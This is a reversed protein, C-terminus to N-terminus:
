AEKGAQKAALARDIYRDLDRKFQEASDAPSSWCMREIDSWDQLTAIYRYRAADEAEDPLAGPQRLAARRGAQFAAWRLASADAYRWDDHEDTFDSWWAEFSSREDAVLLGAMAPATDLPAAFSDRLGAIAAEIRRFALQDAPSAGDLAHRVSLIDAGPDADVRVLDERVYRVDVSNAPHCGWFVDDYSDFQALEDDEGTSLYIEQPWTALAEDAKPASDPRGGYKKNFAEVIPIESAFLSRGNASFVEQIKRKPAAREDDPLTPQAVSATRVDARFRTASVPQGEPQGKENPAPQAALKGDHVGKQYIFLDTDEWGPRNVHEARWRYFCEAEMAAGISGERYDLLADLKAQLQEIDIEDPTPQATPAADAVIGAYNFFYARLGEITNAAKLMTEACEGEYGKDAALGRLDQVVDRFSAGDAQAAAEAVPQAAVTKRCELWGAKFLAREVHTSYKAPARKELAALMEADGGAMRQAAALQKELKEAKTRADYLLASLNTERHHHEQEAKWAAERRAEEARTSAIAEVQEHSFAYWEHQPMTKDANVVPVPHLATVKAPTGAETARDSPPRAIPKRPDRDKPLNM